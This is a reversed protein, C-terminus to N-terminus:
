QVIIIGVDSLDLEDVEPIVTTKFSVGGESVYETFIVETIGTKGLIDFFIRLLETSQVDVEKLGAIAVHIINDEPQRTIMLGGVLSQVIGTCTMYGADFELVVEFANIEGLNNGKVVVSGLSSKDVTTDVIEFSPGAVVISSAKSMAPDGVKGKIDIPTVEFYIYKGVDQLTLQYERSTAQSIVTLNTGDPNESRFWRYKSAGEIDKEPDSYDYEGEVRQGSITQGIIRVNSAVPMKNIPPCGSLVVLVVSLLVVYILRKLLIM